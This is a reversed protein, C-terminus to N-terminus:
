HRLLKNALEDHSPPLVRAAGIRGPEEPPLPELIEAGNPASDALYGLLDGLAAEAVSISARREFGQHAGDGLLPLDKAPGVMCEQPLGLQANGVDVFAFFVLQSEAVQEMCAIAAVIFPAHHRRDPLDVSQRDLPQPRRDGIQEVEDMRGYHRRGVGRDDPAVVRDHTRVHLQSPPVVIKRHAHSDQLKVLRVPREQGVVEASRRSQHEVHTRSAIRRRGRRVVVFCPRCPASIEDLHRSSLAAAALFCAQSM